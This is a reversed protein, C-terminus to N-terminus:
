EFYGTERCGGSEDIDGGAEVGGAGGGYVGREGAGDVVVVKIAGAITGLIIHTDAFRFRASVILDVPAKDAKIHIGIQKSGAFLDSGGNESNIYEM